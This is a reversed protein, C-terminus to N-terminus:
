RRQVRREAAHRHAMSSDAEGKENRHRRTADEVAVVLAQPPAVHREAPALHEGFSLARGFLRSAFGMMISWAGFFRTMQKLHCSSLRSIQPFEFTTKNTRSPPPPIDACFRRHSIVPRDSPSGYKMAAVPRKPPSLRRGPPQRGAPLRDASARRRRDLPSARPPLSLSSSLPLRWPPLRRTRAKLPPSTSKSRARRPTPSGSSRNSM